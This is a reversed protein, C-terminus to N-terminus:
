AHNARWTSFHLHEQKFLGHPTRERPKAGPFRGNKLRGFAQSIPTEKQAPRRKKSVTIMQDCCLYKITRILMPEFPLITLRLIFRLCICWGNLVSCPTRYLARLMALGLPKLEVKWTGLKSAFLNEKYWKQGLGEADFLGIKRDSNPGSEPMAAELRKVAKSWGLSGPM